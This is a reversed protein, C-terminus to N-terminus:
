SFIVYPGFHQDLDFARAKARFLKDSDMQFRTWLDIETSSETNEAKMKEEMM